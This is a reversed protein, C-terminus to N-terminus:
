HIQQSPPDDCVVKHKDVIGWNYDPNRKIVVCFEDDHVIIYEGLIVLVQYQYNTTKSSFEEFDIIRAKINSGILGTMMVVMASPDIRTIVATDKSNKDNDEFYLITPKNLPLARVVSFKNSVKDWRYKMLKNM